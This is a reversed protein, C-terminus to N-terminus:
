GFLMTEFGPGGEFSDIAHLKPLYGGVVDVLEELVVHNVVDTLSLAEM